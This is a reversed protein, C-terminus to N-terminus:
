LIDKEWILLLSDKLAFTIRSFYNEIVIFGFASSNCSENSRWGAVFVRRLSFLVMGHLRVCNYTVVRLSYALDISASTSIQYELRLFVFVGNSVSIFLFPSLSIFFNNNATAEITPIITIRIISDIM